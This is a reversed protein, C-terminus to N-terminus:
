RRRARREGIVPRVSYILKALTRGDTATAVELESHWEQGEPLEPLRERATADAAHMAAIAVEIDTLPASRGLSSESYNM